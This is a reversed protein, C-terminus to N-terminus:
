SPMTKTIQRTRNPIERGAAAASAGEPVIVHPIWM